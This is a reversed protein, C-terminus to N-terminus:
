YSKEEPSNSEYTISSNEKLAFFVDRHCSLYDSYLEKDHPERIIQVVFPDVKKVLNLLQNTFKVMPVQSIDLWRLYIRMSKLYEQLIKEPSSAGVFYSCIDDYEVIFAAVEDSIQMWHVIDSNLFSIKKKSYKTIFRLLNASNRMNALRLISDVKKPRLSFCSRYQSGNKSPYLKSFVYEIIEMDDTAVLTDHFLDCYEENQINPYCEFNKFLIRVLELNKLKLVKQYKEKKCYGHESDLPSSNELIHIMSLPDNGLRITSLAEELFKPNKGMLLDALIDFLEGNKKSPFMPCLFKPVLTKPYSHVLHICLDLRSAESLLKLFFKYYIRGTLKMSHKLRQMLLIYYSRSGLTISPMLNEIIADEHKRKETIETISAFTNTSEKPPTILSIFRPKQPEVLVRFFKSVMRLMIYDAMEINALLVLLVDVPLADLTIPEAHLTLPLHNSITDIGRKTM